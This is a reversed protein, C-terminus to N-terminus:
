STLFVLQVKFILRSRCSLTSKSFRILANISANADRVLVVVGNIVQEISVPIESSNQEKSENHEEVADEFVDEDEEEEVGAM